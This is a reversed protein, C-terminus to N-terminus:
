KNYWGIQLINNYKIISDEDFNILKILDFQELCYNQKLLIKANKENKAFIVGAYYEPKNFFDIQYAFYQKKYM